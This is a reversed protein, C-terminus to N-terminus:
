EPGFSRMFNQLYRPIIGLWSLASSFGFFHEKHGDSFFDPTNLSKNNSFRVFVSASMLMLKPKNPAVKKNKRKGYTNTRQQIICYQPFNHVNRAWIRSLLRLLPTIFLYTKSCHILRRPIRLSFWDTRYRSKYNQFTYTYTHIYIHTGFEKFFFFSKVGINLARHTVLDIFFM